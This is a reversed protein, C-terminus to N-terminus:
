AESLTRRTAGSLTRQQPIRPLRAGSVAPVRATVTVTARPTAVMASAILSPAVVAMTVIAAVANVTTTAATSVTPSPANLTLMARVATIVAGASVVPVPAAGSVPAVPAQVNVSGGASVFPAVASAAVTARVATVVAGATVVGPVATVTAVARVATVTGNVAVGVFPAFAAVTVTATPIGLSVDVSGAPVSVALAVNPKVGTVTAGASVSPTGASVTVTARIANVTGAGLGAVTPVPATVTVVAPVANVTANTGSPISLAWTIAEKNPIGTVGPTLTATPQWSSGTYGEVYAISLVYGDTNGTGGRPEYADLDEVPTGTGSWVVSPPSSVSTSGYSGGIAAMVLNTGTLGTVNPGAASNGVGVAAVANAFTTGSPFEYMAVIVPYDSGNHQLVLTDSGAAVKHVLYLGTNSVANYGTAAAGGAWGSPATGGGGGATGTSTVSAQVVAVLRRGATPTFAAGSLVTGSTAPDVTHSATGNRPLQIIVRNLWVVM